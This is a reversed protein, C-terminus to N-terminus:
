QFYSHMIENIFNVRLVLALAQVFLVSENLLLRYIGKLLIM